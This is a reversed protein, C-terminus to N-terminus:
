VSDPPRKEWRRGVTKVAIWCRCEIEGNWSGRVQESTFSTYRKRFENEEQSGAVVWTDTITDAYTRVTHDYDDSPTESTQVAVLHLMCVKGRRSLWFIGAVVLTTGVIGAIILLAYTGIM